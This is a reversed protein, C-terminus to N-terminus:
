AFSKHFVLNWIKSIKNELLNPFNKDAKLFHFSKYGLIWLGPLEIKMSKCIVQDYHLYVHYFMYVFLLIRAAQMQCIIEATM